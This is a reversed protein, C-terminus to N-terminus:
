EEAQTPRTFAPTVLVAGLALALVAAVPFDQPRVFGWVVLALTGGGCLLIFGFLAWQRISDKLAHSDDFALRQTLVHFRSAPGLGLFLFALGLQSALSPPFEPLAWQQAIRYLTLFGAFSAATAFMSYRRTSAATAEARAAAEEDVSSRPMMLPIERGEAMM